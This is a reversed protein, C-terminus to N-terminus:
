EMYFPNLDKKLQKDSELPKTTNPSGGSVPYQPRPTSHRLVPQDKRDHQSDHQCLFVAISAIGIGGVAWLIWNRYVTDTPEPKEALDVSPKAMSKVMPLEQEQRTSLTTKAERLEVLLKEQKTKRAAAGARGAAVKKPDKESM